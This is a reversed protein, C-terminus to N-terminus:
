CASGAPGTCGAPRRRVSLTILGEQLVEGGEDLLAVHRVVTGRARRTSSGYSAAVTMRASVTAGVVLPRRFTWSQVSLMALTTGHHVGTQEILGVAIALGLFGHAVTRGFPGRAAFEEDLHLPNHDGTLEAFAAVDRATVVRSATSVSTGPVLDEFWLGTTALDTTAPTATATAATTM